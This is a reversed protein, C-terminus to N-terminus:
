HRIITIPTDERINDIDLRTDIFIVTASMAIAYPPQRGARKPPQVPSIPSIRIDPTAYGAMLPPMPPTIIDFYIAIADLL